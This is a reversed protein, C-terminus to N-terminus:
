GDNVTREPLFGAIHEAGRLRREPLVVRTQRRLERAKELINAPLLTGGYQLNRAFEPCVELEHCAAEIERVTFGRGSIARVIAALRDSNLDLGVSLVLQGIAFLVVQEHDERTANEKLNLSLLKM